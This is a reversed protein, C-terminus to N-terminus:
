RNVFGNRLSSRHVGEQRHAFKGTGCFEVIEISRHVASQFAATKAVLVKVIVTENVVLANGCPRYGPLTEGVELLPAALDIMAIRPLLLRLAHFDPQLLSGQNRQYLVNCPLEVNHQPCRRSVEAAGEEMLRRLM